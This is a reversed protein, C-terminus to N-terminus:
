FDGALIEYTIPSNELPLSNFRCILNFNRDKDVLNNEDITPKISTNPKYGYIGVTKAMRNEVGCVCIKVSGIRVQTGFDVVFEIPPLGFGCTSTQGSANDTYTTNRNNLKTRDWITRNSWYSFFPIVGNQETTFTSYSLVTHKDDYFTLETITTSSYYIYADSIYVV